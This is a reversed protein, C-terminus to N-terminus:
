PTLVAKSSNYVIVQCQLRELLTYPTDPHRRTCQARLGFAISWRSASSERIRSFSGKVGSDRSQMWDTPGMYREHKGEIEM